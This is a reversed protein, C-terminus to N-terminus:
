RATKAVIRVLNTMGRRERVVLGKSELKDLVRTVKAKSFTGLAVLDRQLAEGGRERIELYMRREDEDLLRVLTLEPVPGPVPGVPAPLPSADRPTVETPTAAPIAAPTAAVAAAPPGTVRSRARFLLVLSTAFLLFSLVLVLWEIGGPTSAEAGGGNHMGGGMMGWMSQQAAFSAASLILGVLAVVAALILLVSASNDTAM